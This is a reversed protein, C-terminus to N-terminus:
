WSFVVPLNQIACLGHHYLRAAVVPSLTFAKQVPFIFVSKLVTSVVLKLSVTFRIKVNSLLFM